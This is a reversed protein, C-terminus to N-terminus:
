EPATGGYTLSYTGYIPRKLLDDQASPNAPPPPAAMSLARRAPRYRSLRATHRYKRGSVLLHRVTAELNGLETGKKLIYKIRTM